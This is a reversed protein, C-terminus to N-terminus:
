VGCLLDDWRTFGTTNKCGVCLSLMDKHTQEQLDFTLEGHHEEVRIELM